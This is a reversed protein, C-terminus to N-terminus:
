CFCFIIRVCFVYLYMSLYNNRIYKGINVERGRKREVELRAYTSPGGTLLSTLLMDLM